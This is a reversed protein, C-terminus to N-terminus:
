ATKWWDGPGDVPRLGEVVANREGPLCFMNISLIRGFVNDPNAHFNDARYLPSLHWWLRYDMGQLLAILEASKEKRDNEVFLVPRTRAITEAAGAVVEAEAGEVDIKLLDLRKLGLGDVTAVPVTESAKGALKGTSLGGFNEKEAYGLLPMAVTGPQRGVAAHFPLVNLLGNLALNGCLINFLARQPEFAVVHGKEGVARAIPVTLAGINAGAEVAVGGVPLVRRFLTTEDESFEGYLRLSRGVYRDGAPYMFFGHRCRCTAVAPKTENRAM